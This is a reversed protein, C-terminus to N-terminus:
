WLYDSNGMDKNIIMRVLLGKGAECRTSYGESRFRDVASFGWKGNDRRYCTGLLKDGISNQYVEYFSGKQKKTGTDFYHIYYVCGSLRFRDFDAM